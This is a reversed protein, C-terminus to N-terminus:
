QRLARYESTSCSIREMPWEVASRDLANKRREGRRRQICKPQSAWEIGPCPGCGDMRSRQASPKRCAKGESVAEFIKRREVPAVLFCYAFYNDAVIPNYQRCFSIPRFKQGCYKRARDLKKFCKGLQLMRCDIDTRLKELGAM